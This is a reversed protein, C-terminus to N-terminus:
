YIIYELRFYIHDLEILIIKNSNSKHRKNNTYNNNNEISMGSFFTRSSATSPIAENVGDSTFYVGISAESGSAIGTSSVAISSEGRFSARRVL